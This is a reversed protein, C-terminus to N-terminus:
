VVQVSGRGACDSRSGLRARGGPPGPWSRAHSPFTRGRRHDRALHLRPAHGARYLAAGMTEIVSEAVQALFPKDFGIKRGFRAARRLIMRLVYARGVNGPLVGDGILFTVARAHDAIVRYAIINDEVQARTHGLLEQTRRMIPTFLDTKYNSDEGQLVSVIREFGM